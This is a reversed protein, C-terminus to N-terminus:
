TNMNTKKANEKKNKKQIAHATTCTRSLIYSCTYNHRISVINIMDVSALELFDM